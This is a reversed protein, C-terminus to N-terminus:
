RNDVNRLWLRGAQDALMGTVTDIEAGGTNQSDFVVLRVGDFRVLGRFTSFWLYGDTTQAISIVSNQPLGDDSQWTRIMYDESIDRVLGVDDEAGLCLFFMAFVAICLLAGVRLVGYSRRFLTLSAIPNEM